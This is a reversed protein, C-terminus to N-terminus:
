RVSFRQIRRVEIREGFKQVAEDILGKVIRSPDKIYEQELLVKDKFYADVKGALIKDALDAPKGKVEGALAQKAKEVEHAEVDKRAIAIPNTAAVQLALEYALAVFEPNKAVFDTECSLEVLSGVEKNSHIYAAVTGAGLARAGKKEAIASGKKRLLVLAKEMDGGAEELAYKCQMVSVGTADRLRKVQETTIEM